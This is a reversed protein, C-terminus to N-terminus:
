QHLLSDVLDDWYQPLSDWPNGGGDDTVYVYGIHNQRVRDLVQALADRPTDHVLVWFRNPGYQAAWEPATWDAFNAASDEYIMLIDAFTLYSECTSVGPNLAVLANPDQTRVQAAWDSYRQQYRVCTRADVVEDMFIGDIAYLAYWRAIDANVEAIDRQGYGTYVYGLVTVGAARAANIERQYNADLQEAPGNHPNAILIGFAPAAETAQAWLSDPEPYFYAPIGLRPGQPRAIEPLSADPLAADPLAADPLAADPLDTDLCSPAGMCNPDLCDFLGDQDNDAGDSCEGPEDGEFLAPGTDREVPSSTPQSSCGVLFLYFILGFPPHRM